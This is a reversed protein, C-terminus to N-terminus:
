LPLKTATKHVIVRLVQQKAQNSGTKSRKWEMETAHHTCQPGSANVIQQFFRFSLDTRLFPVGRFYKGNSRNFYSDGISFTIAEVPGAQTQIAQLIGNLAKNKLWMGFPQLTFSIFSLLFGAGWLVLAM